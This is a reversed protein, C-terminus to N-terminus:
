FEYKTELGKWEVQCSLPMSCIVQGEQFEPDGETLPSLKLWILDERYLCSHLQVYFINNNVKDNHNNGSQTQDLPKSLGAHLPPQTEPAPVSNTPLSTM